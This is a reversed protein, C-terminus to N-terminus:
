VNDLICLINSEFVYYSPVKVCMELDQRVYEQVAGQQRYVADHEGSIPQRFIFCLNFYCM